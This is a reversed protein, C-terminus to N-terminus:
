SVTFKKGQVGSSFLASGKQEGFCRMFYVLKKQHRDQERRSRLNLLIHSVFGCGSSRKKFWVNECRMVEEFDIFLLALPPGFFSQHKRNQGIRNLTKLLIVATLAALGSHQKGFGSLPDFTSVRAPRKGEFLNTLRQIKVRAVQSHAQRPPARQVLFVSAHAPSYSLGEAILIADFLASNTNGM